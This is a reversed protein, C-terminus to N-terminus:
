GKKNTCFGHLSFAVAMVLSIYDQQHLSSGPAMQNVAVQAAQSAGIVGGLVTTLRDTNFNM